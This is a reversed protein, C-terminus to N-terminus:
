SGSMREFQWAFQGFHESSMCEAGHGANCGLAQYQHDGQRVRLQRGGSDANGGEPYQQRVRSVQYPVARVIEKSAFAASPKAACWGFSFGAARNCDYRPEPDGAPPRPYDCLNPGVTAKLLCCSLAM